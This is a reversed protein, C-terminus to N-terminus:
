ATCIASREAREWRLQPSAQAFVRLRGSRSAAISKGGMSRATAPQAPPPTVASGELAVKLKDGPVPVISVLQVPQLAVLLCPVDTSCNVAESALPPGADTTHDTEPPSALLPGPAM